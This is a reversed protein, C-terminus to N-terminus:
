KRNLYKLYKDSGGSVSGAGLKLPPPPADGVPILEKRLRDSLRVASDIHDQCSQKEYDRNNPNAKMRNYEQVYMKLARQLIRLEASHLGGDVHWYSGTTSM